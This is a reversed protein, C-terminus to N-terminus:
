KVPSSLHSVRLEWNSHNMSLTHTHPPQQVRSSGLALVTTPHRKNLWRYHYCCCTVFLYHISKARPWWDPSLWPMRRDESLALFFLEYLYIVSSNGFLDEFKYGITLSNVWVLCWNNLGLGLVDSPEWHTLRDDNSGNNVQYYRGRCLM